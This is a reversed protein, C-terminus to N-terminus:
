ILFFVFTVPVAFSVSCAIFVGPTAFLHYSIVPITLHSKIVFPNYRTKSLTAKIPSGARAPLCLCP